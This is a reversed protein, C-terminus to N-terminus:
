RGKKLVEVVKDYDAAKFAWGPKGVNIDILHKRAKARAQKPDIGLKRAVDALIFPEKAEVQSKGQRATKRNKKIITAIENIEEQETLENERVLTDAEEDHVPRVTQQALEDPTAEFDQKAKLALVEKHYADALAAKSAKWSKLPTKGNMVRFTNLNALDTM